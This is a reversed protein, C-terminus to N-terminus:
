REPLLSRPTPRLRVIELDGALKGTFLSRLDVDAAHAGHADEDAFQSLWVFVEVDERVPLAPFDNKAHETVFRARVEAGAQRLTPEIEGAFLGPFAAAREPDLPCITATLLGPRPPAGVPPRRAPDLPLRSTGDAPRLLLVNDVSVMTANAADSNAAWAAGTYFATLAPARTALDRFGRLWVFSDPDDLDSFTGLIRMGVAEQTEVFERDFLEILTDRAGPRLAYRRLELVGSGERARIM